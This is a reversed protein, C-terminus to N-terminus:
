GVTILIVAGGALLLGAVQLRTWREALFLRALLVTVAPGMASLVAVVKLERRGTSALFLLNGVGGLLGAGLMYTVVMASPRRVSRLGIIAFPAVLLVSVALGPILPWAGAHTGALHLAIFLLGFGAGAAAGYLLGRRTASQKGAGSQWSVLGVAPVASVLGIWALPAPRHGLVLGAIVPLVVTLVAAVTAVLSMRGIALGRYLSLTGVGSGLGSVAGWILVSRDPRGGGFLVTALVATGLGIVEVVATVPGAAFRRSAIGAGFDSVGYAIAALIALLAGM